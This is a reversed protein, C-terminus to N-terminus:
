IELLQDLVFEKRHVLMSVLWIELLHGLELDKWIVWQHDLM